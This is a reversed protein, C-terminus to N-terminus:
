STQPEPPKKRSHPGHGRTEPDPDPDRVKPLIAISWAVVAAMWFYAAVSLWQPRAPLFDGIARMATGAILLAAAILLSPLRSEFLHLNGSHGLAVRTAVTLTILTFGGLFVVHLGAVRQGPWFLPFALGIFIAALSILISLPVTRFPAPTRFIPIFALLCGVVTAGRIAPAYRAANQVGFAEAAYAGVIVVGAVAAVLARRTWEPSPKRDESMGRLGPIKLFRPLLFGGVGLILCLVFAENLLAGGFIMAGGSVWSKMGALWLLTGFFGCLLGLGVLVFSPPPLDERKKVRRLMCVAFFLMEILFAPDGWLIPHVALLRHGAIHLGATTIHLAVLTWLEWPRLAPAGLLRPMATGLFGFVFAGLFGHIMLRGHMLGPYFSHHLGGFFLPWLSVGAIGLFAGLPFFVRFPEAPCLSTFRPKANPKM